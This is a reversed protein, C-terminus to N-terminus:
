QDIQGRLEGSPNADTRVNFYFNGALFFNVQAATLVKDSPVSWVGSGSNVLAIVIGGNEGRAGEHVHVAIVPTVPPSTQLTVFGRVAGSATSVDLSGSGSAATTVPPVEEAGSLSAAKSVITGTLPAPGDVAGSGNGGGGCGPQFFAGILLINVILFKIGRTM